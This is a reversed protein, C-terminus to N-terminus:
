LTLGHCVLACPVRFYSHWTVVWLVHLEKGGVWIGLCWVVAWALSYRLLLETTHVQAVPKLSLHDNQLTM